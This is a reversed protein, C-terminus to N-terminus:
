HPGRSTELHVILKKGNKSTKWRFVTKTFENVFSKWVRNEFLKEYIIENYRLWSNSLLLNANGQDRRLSSHQLKQKM